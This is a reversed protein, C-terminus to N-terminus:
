LSDDGFFLEKIRNIKVGFRESLEVYQPETLPNETFRSPLGRGAIVGRIMDFPIPHTLATLMEVAFDFTLKNQDPRKM